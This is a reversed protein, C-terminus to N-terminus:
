DHDLDAGIVAAVDVTESSSPPVPHVATGFSTLNIVTTAGAGGVPITRLSVVRHQGDVWVYIAQTADRAGLYQEIFAVTRVFGQRRPGSASRAASALDAHVLYGTAQVGDITSSGLPAADQAGWAVEALLFGPDRQELRMLYQALFPSKKVKEAFDARIWPRGHPLNGSEATPRKDFTRAPFYVLSETGVSDQATAQGIARRFDFTGTATVPPYPVNPPTVYQLSMAARQTLTHAAAARVATLDDATPHGVTAPAPPLSVTTTTTPGAAGGGCAALLLVPSIAALWTLCRM